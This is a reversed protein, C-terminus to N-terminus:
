YRLRGYYTRRAAARAEGLTRIGLNQLLPILRLFIEATLLADALADHRRAVAIDLRVAIEELGHSAQDPHTVAALLLTDLVAHDFRVGAVDQKLELFRMDFAANHAVLVTDSVFAHFAPLVERITPKGRLMDPTLGHILSSAPAISRQPDVLQDFCESKLLKGNVIRTAGIQIIEDGGSPDLGTTETDFVTYSLDALARDDLQRWQPSSRFLDFDYFEPRAEHRHLAAAPAEVREDAVPLLFRFFGGDGSPEREFWFEAGHRDVVENLSLPLSQGAIRMADGQWSAVTASGLAPGSWALDLRARPSAAALRL